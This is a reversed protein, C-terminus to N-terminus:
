LSEIIKSLILNASRELITDKLKENFDNEYAKLTDIVFKKNNDDLTCESNIECKEIGYAGDNSIMCYNCNLQINSSQVPTTPPVLFTGDARMEGNGRGPFASLNVTKYVPLEYYPVVNRSTLM